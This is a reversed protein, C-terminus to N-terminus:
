GAARVTITWTQLRPTTPGPPRIPYKAYRRVGRLVTAGRSSAVREERIESLLDQRRARVHRMIGPTVWQPLRRRLVNLAHTFSLVDPDLGQSAASDLIARRVLYHGLLLCYVEQIVLLPIKSRLLALSGGRLSSKLERLTTEVEWREHYLEALEMATAQAPDLISTILRVTDQSGVVHYEIVRIRLPRAGQRKLDRSPVMVSLYSGDDLVQVIPFQMNKRVRIVLDAKTRIAAQWWPYGIYHRDLLCLMGPRLQPLLSLALAIEGTHYPALAAGVIIHTGCEVLAVLHLMPFSGSGLSKGPGDFHAFKKPTDRLARTTGDMIVLRRGKFFAGPTAVTACPRVLQTFLDRMVDSGLRVRAQAVASRTALEKRLDAAREGSHVILQDLITRLTDRYSLHFYFCSAILYYVLLDAPLKRDRASAVGHTTLLAQVRALPIHEMLLHLQAGALPSPLFSRM